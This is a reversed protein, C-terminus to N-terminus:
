GGVLLSEQDPQSAIRDPKESFTPLQQTGIRRRSRENAHIEPSTHVNSLRASQDPLTVGVRCGKGVGDALRGLAGGAITSSSLDERGVDQRPAVDLDLHETGVLGDVAGYV